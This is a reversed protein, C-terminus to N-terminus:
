QYQLYVCLVFAAARKALVREQGPFFHTWNRCNSNGWRTWPARRSSLFWHRARQKVWMPKQHLFPTSKSSCQFRSHGSPQYKQDVTGILSAKQLLGGCEQIGLVSGSRFYWPLSFAPKKSGTSFASSAPGQHRGVKRKSVPIRTLFRTEMDLRTTAATLLAPSDIVGAQLHQGARCSWAELSAESGGVQGGM